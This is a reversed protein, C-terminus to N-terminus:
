CTRVKGLVSIEICCKRSIQFHRKEKFFLQSNWNYPGIFLTFVTCVQYVFKLAYLMSYVFVSLLYWCYSLRFFNNPSCLCLFAKLSKWYIILLHSCILLFHCCHFNCFADIIKIQGENTRESANRHARENVRVYQVFHINKKKQQSNFTYCIWFWMFKNYIDDTAASHNSRYFLVSKIKISLLLSYCYFLLFFSM